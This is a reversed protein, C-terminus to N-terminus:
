EKEPASENENSLYNLVQMGWGTMFPGSGIIQPEINYIQQRFIDMCLKNGGTIKHLLLLNDAMISNSSLTNYDIVPARKVPSKYENKATKSFMGNVPQYHNFFIYGAYEKAMKWYLEDKTISYYTLLCNLLLSYDYLDSTSYEVNTSTIYKYLKNSGDRRRNLVRGIIWSAMSLYEKKEGKQTVKAMACYAIATRCNYGTMVRNDYIVEKHRTKRIKKLAELEEFTIHWYDKTNSIIQYKKADESIDMGLASAIKKWRKPFVKELEELSYKYYISESTNKTLTIYTIFGNNRYMMESEMFAIIREAAEKYIRKKFYKYASALLIIANANEYINKEYSPSRFSYDGAQSFIGGDIPDFMPSYYVHQLTEDIYNLYEQMKYKWAYELIFHLNRPNLTYPARQMKNTKDLFRTSWSKIYAHLLKPTINKKPEKATVVGSYKLQRTLYSSATKLKERKFAFSELLNATIHLFDDPNLSSFSIVPKAGPLAFINIHNSIKKENILLLDMGILYAEPVDETDLIIPIFRNNLIEITEPTSFLTYAANRNEINSINGIHIFLMKDEEIAKNFPEATFPFWNIGCKLLEKVYPSATKYM